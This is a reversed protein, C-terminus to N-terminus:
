SLLSVSLLHGWFSQIPLRNVAQARTNPEHALRVEPALAKIRFPILTPAPPPPSISLPPPPPYYKSFHIIDQDSEVHITPSLDQNQLM